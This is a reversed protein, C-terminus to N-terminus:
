RVGRIIRWPWFQVVPFPAVIYNTVYFGKKTFREIMWVTKEEPSRTVHIFMRRRTVTCIEGAIPMTYEKGEELKDYM